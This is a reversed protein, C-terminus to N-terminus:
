VGDSIELMFHSMIEWGYRFTKFDREAGKRGKKCIAFFRAIIVDKSPKDNHLLSLVYPDKRCLPPFIVVGYKM